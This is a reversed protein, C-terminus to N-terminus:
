QDAAPPDPPAPAATAPTAPAATPVLPLVPPIVTSAPPGWSELVTHRRLYLLTTRIVSIVPLAVLAGPIGYLKDGILLAVIIIIPNIRLSRRFLQPAVVHGELQQLAIFALLLWLASIPHQFLAVLLPPIPGVIPGVYPIFEMLAYFAGFFVGYHEGAPFLGVLGFVIIIITASTGMVLSFLLQGRVYSSVAHQILSPYDDDDSGDGAPMVRRVLAGIAEGYILLYVSLVLILILDIGISVVSSLLGKSFNVIDGSRKLVNKQLTSLASQGQKQIHVKIGHRNLSNQLNVLDRNATRTLAPLNHQFTTIQSAVPSALVIAIAAIMAVLGLYVVPISLGTPLVRSVLRVAPALVLAVLCAIILVLFLTGVARALAWTALLALPLLVLQVWRRVVVPAM